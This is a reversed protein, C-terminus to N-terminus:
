FILIHANNLYFDGKDLLADVKAYTEGMAVKTKEAQIKNISKFYKSGKETPFTQSCKNCLTNESELEAKFVEGCFPCKVDILSM